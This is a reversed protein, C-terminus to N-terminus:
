LNAMELELSGYYPVEQWRKGLEVVAQCLQKHVDIGSLDPVSRDRMACSSELGDLFQQSDFGGAWLQAQLSEVIAEADIAQEAIQRNHIDHAQEMSYAFDAGQAVLGLFGHDYRMVSEVVYHILDHALVGQRPMTTATETGDRRVCRLLDYKENKSQKTAILKLTVGRIFYVFAGRNRHGVM